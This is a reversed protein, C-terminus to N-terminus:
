GAAERRSPLTVIGCWFRKISWMVAIFQDMSVPKKVYSNAYLQYARQIDDEAQSTTLIIIPIDQLDPQSKVRALVERGDTCPLNLDLLVLDPRPAHGFAGERKLYAIAQEGDSLWHFRHPLDIEKLAEQTLRADGPNDDVMLIDIPRPGNMDASGAPQCRTGGGSEPSGTRADVSFRRM